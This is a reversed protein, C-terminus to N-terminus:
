LDKGVWSEIIRHYNAANQLGRLIVQNNEMNKCKSKNLERNKSYETGHRSM